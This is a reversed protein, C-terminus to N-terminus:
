KPAVPNQTYKVGPKWFEQKEMRNRVSKELEIVSNYVGHEKAIAELKTYLEDIKPPTRGWTFPAQIRRWEDIDKFYKAQSFAIKAFDPNKKSDELIYAYSLDHIKDITEKDLITYKTGAEKFKRTYEGASYEFYTWSWMMTAMAAEKFMFKVRDPLEEYAKKNIIVGSVPGPQHWGPLVWYKTVEHFGMSWDCEPVSFEGADITGRSLALYIEAGPMFIAAGGLDKLIQAQVRGCQRMKVGKYDDGKYIPKNSRQGSEPGTISHPFFVMNFKGYLEQSLELGGAQWFWLMYDAPTLWVPTSTILSFATNKGEWYSPWDTAMQLSGKQVADFIENSTKVLTGGPFYKIELEGAALVNMLDGFYKDGRWLTISPVWMSQYRWKTEAAAAPVTWGFAGALIAALLITSLVFSVKKQM